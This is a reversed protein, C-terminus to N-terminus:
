GAPPVLRVLMVAHTAVALIVLLHFVEHYGFWEPSPDPRRLGVITAGVTYLLGGVLLLGVTVPGASWWLWPLLAVPVWGLTLYVANNFGKPPAFPLWEVLVGLGVGVVAVTFLVRAPWGSLGLLALAVGTGGIAAYIGSHDLRFLREYTTADWRRLHLLASCAFMVAMGLGFVGLALRSRTDPALVVATVALPPVVVAAVLHSTGRLRPRPSALARETNVSRQLIARQAATPDDVARV